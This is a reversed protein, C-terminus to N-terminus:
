GGDDTEHHTARIIAELEEAYERRLREREVLRRYADDPLCALDTATLRPLVPRAPLPLPQTVYGVDPPTACGSGVTTWIIAAALMWGPKSM